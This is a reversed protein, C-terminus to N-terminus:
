EAPDFVLLSVGYPPLTVSFPSEMGVFREPGTVTGTAGILSYPTGDVTTPPAVNAPLVQEVPFYDYREGSGSTGGGNITVTVNVSFLEPAQTNILLVGVRGDERLSAHAVLSPTNSMATVMRDGPGALLSAMQIGSFAPGKAATNENLFTGNHLELWDVNVFGLEAAMLYMDAAFIGMAHGRNLVCNPRTTSVRGMPISVGTGVETMVIEISEANDGAHEAFTERLTSEMVAMVNRPYGLVAALRYLPNACLDDSQISPPNPYWHVIGFDIVDGCETIVDTNWHFTTPDEGPTEAPVLVTM